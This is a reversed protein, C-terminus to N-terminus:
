HHARGHTGVRLATPIPNIWREVKEEKKSKAQAAKHAQTVARNKVPKGPTMKGPFFCDFDAKIMRSPRGKHYARWTWIKELEARKFSWQGMKSRKGLRLQSALRTLEMKTIDLFAAAETRNYIIHPNM